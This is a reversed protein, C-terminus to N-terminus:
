FIVQLQTLFTTYDQNKAFFAPDLSRKDFTTRSLEMALNLNQGRFYYRAGGGFWDLKQDYVGNLWAFAWNEYRGFFQLPFNPLMYAAKVYGGNRQGYFGMTGPDPNAGKYADALDFNAYAAGVTFTGIEAFKQEYFGDFTYGFYNVAGTQTVINSFAIQPEYQIAAGFTLV